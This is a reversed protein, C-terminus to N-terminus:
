LLASFASYYGSEFASLVLETTESFSCCVDGDDYVSAQRELMAVKDQLASVQIALEQARVEASAKTALSIEVSQRLRESEAREQQVLAKHTDCTLQLRRNEQQLNHTLGRLRRIEEHQEAGSSAGAGDEHAGAADQQYADGAMILLQLPQPKPAQATM